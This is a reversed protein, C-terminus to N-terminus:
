TFLITWRCVRFKKGSLIQKLFYHRFFVAATIKSQSKGGKMTNWGGKYGTFTTGRQLSMM